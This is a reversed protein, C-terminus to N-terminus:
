KRLAGYVENENYKEFASLVMNYKTEVNSLYSVLIDLKVNGTDVCNM